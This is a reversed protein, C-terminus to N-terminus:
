MEYLCSLEALATVLAVATVVVIVSMELVRVRLCM